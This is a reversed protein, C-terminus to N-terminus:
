DATTIGTSASVFHLIRKIGGVDLFFYRGALQTCTYIDVQLTEPFPSRYSGMTSAPYTAYKDGNMINLAVYRLTKQKGQLRGCHHCGGGQPWTFRPRGIIWERTENVTSNSKLGTCSCDHFM